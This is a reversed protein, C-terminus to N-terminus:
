YKQEEFSAEMKQLILSHTKYPAAHQHTLFSSIHFWVVLNHSLLFPIGPLSLYQNNQEMIKDM